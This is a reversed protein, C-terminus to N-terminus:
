VPKNIIWTSEEEIDLWYGKEPEIFKLNNLSEPSGPVYQLWIKQAIDYTYISRCKISSLFERIAKKKSYNSGILNFGKRLPISKYVLKGQITLIADSNVKFWYGMGQEIKDLSNESPIKDPSYVLWKKETSNYTWVSDLAWLIPTLLTKINEYAPQIPISVLNWGKFLKVSVQEYSCSENSFGSLPHLINLSGLTTITKLFTRRDM